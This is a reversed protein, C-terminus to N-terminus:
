LGLPGNWPKTYIILVERYYQVIERWKSSVMKDYIHKKGGQIILRSHPRYPVLKEFYFFLKVMNVSQTCLILLQKLFFLHVISINSYNVKM